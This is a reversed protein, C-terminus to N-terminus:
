QPPEADGSPGEGDPETVGPAWEAPNELLEDTFRPSLVALRAAGGSLAAPAPDLVGFRRGLRTLSGQDSVGPLEVGVQGVLEWRMALLVRIEGGRVEPRWWASFARQVERWAERNGPTATGVRYPASVSRVRSVLSARAVLDGQDTQTKEFTATRTWLRVMAERFKRGAATEAGLDTDSAQPLTDYLDSWLAELETRIARLIGPRNPAGDPDRPADSAAAAADILWNPTYTVFENRPIERGQAESWLGRDARHRVQLAQTARDAVVERVTPGARSGKPTLSLTALGILEAFARATTERSAAPDIQALQRGASDWSSLTSSIQIEIPLRDGRRAEVTVKLTGSATRRARAVRLTFPGATVAQDGRAGGPRDASPTPGPPGGPDPPSGRGESYYSCRGELARAITMQGYTAGDSRHPQDWKARMLGSRRFVRDILGEDAGGAFFAIYSCLALDAASHDGGHGSTDGAMLADFERVVKSRGARDIVTQEDLAPSGGTPKGNPKPRGPVPPFLADYVRDFGAQCDAVECPSGPLRDGTVTFYRGSGYVEAAGGQVPRKHKANPPLRFRGFLKVGAQSPSVEAYAGLTDIIDQAWGEIQGTKPDRCDDLDVGAIGAPTGEPVPGFDEAAVLVFGVGDARGAEVAAFAEAFTAWTAPDTSKASCLTRPNLPPKDWDGRGGGKDPNWTWRWAVWQPLARLEIPINEARLPLAAPKPARGGATSPGAHPISTTAGPHRAASFHSPVVM